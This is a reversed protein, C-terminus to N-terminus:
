GKRAGKAAAAKKNAEQITRYWALVARACAAREDASKMAAIALEDASLKTGDKKAKAVKAAALGYRVCREIEPPMNPTAAKPEPAAEAVTQTVATEQKLESWAQANEFLTSCGQLSVTLILSTLLLACPSLRKAPVNSNM